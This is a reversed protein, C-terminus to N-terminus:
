QQVRLVNGYRKPFASHQLRMEHSESKKTGAHAKFWKDIKMGQKLAPVAQFSTIDHVDLFQDLFEGGFSPMDSIESSM